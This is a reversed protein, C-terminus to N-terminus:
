PYRHLDRVIEPYKGLAGLARVCREISPYVPVSIDQLQKTWLDVTDKSGIINITIPKDPYKERIEKIPTEVDFAFM